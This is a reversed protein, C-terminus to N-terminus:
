DNKFSQKLLTYLFVDWEYAFFDEIVPKERLNKIFTKNSPKESTIKMTTIM